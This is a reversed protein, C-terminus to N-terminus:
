RCLRRLRRGARRLSRPQQAALWGVAFWAEPVQGALADFHARAQLEDNCRGLADLVRRLRDLMRPAATKPLLPLLAETLYRLRKLRRRLRHRQEPAAGDFGAADACVRRQQRRLLSRAQPRLDRTDVGGVPPAPPHQASRVALRLCRLMLLTFAADRVVAAADGGEGTIRPWPLPPAGAAELQPRLWAQMVDADRQAGLRQFPERLAAEIALAENEDASWAALARLLSRLRRLGTRLRHLVEADCSGGATEASAPLLERLAAQMAAACAEGPTMGRDVGRAQAPPGEGGGALRWGRESKTRPDLVLRHRQVWQGALDILELPSGAILEFEVEAVPMSRGAAVIHGEDYAVECVTGARRIRRHLRTVRTHFREELVAGDALLAALRDGAETGVHLSPDPEPPGRRPLPVEHEERQWLGDGRGKLAQVRHEGERRVRLALGAKALRGDATDFYAAALRTRRARATAVARRLDTRGAPGVQFKLEIEMRRCDPKAAAGM